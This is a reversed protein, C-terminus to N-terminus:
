HKERVWVHTERSFPFFRFLLTELFLTKRTLQIWLSFITKQWGYLLVLEFRYASYIKKQKELPLHSHRFGMDKFNFMIAIM